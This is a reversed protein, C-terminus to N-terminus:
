ANHMKNYKKGASIGEDNYHVIEKMSGLGGYLTGQHMWFCHYGKSVVKASDYPVVDELIFKLSGTQGVLLNGIIPDRYIKSYELM